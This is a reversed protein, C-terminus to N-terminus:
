SGLFLLLRQETIVFLLFTFLGLFCITALKRFLISEKILALVLFIVGLIGLTYTIISVIINMTM